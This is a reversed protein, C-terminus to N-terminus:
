HLATPEIMNNKVRMTVSDGAHARITPALYAANIGLTPTSLDQLFTSIGAAIDLEYIRRAGTAGDILKPIKLPNTHREAAIPKFPPATGVAMAAAGLVIDRRSFIQM